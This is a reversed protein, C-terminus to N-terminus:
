FKRVNAVYFRYGGSFNYCDFGNQTLICCALYSRLGSQCMVYVPKSHDLEGLRGRLDDVPINVFGEAHGRAYELPTRTDLLTVSGDQPLNEVDGAHFQKLIGDSINEIMSIDFRDTMDMSTKITIIINGDPARPPASGPRCLQVFVSVTQRVPVPLFFPQM